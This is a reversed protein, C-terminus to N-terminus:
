PEVEMDCDEPVLYLFASNKRGATVPAGIAMPIETEGSSLNLKELRFINGERSVPIDMLNWGPGPLKLFPVVEGGEYERIGEVVLRARWKTGPLGEPPSTSDSLSAESISALIRRTRMNRRYASYRSNVTRFVDDLRDLLDFLSTLESKLARQREVRLRDWSNVIYEDWTVLSEIRLLYSIIMNLVLKKVTEVRTGGKSVSRLSSMMERTCVLKARRLISQRSREKSSRLEKISGEISEKLASAGQDGSILKEVRDALSMYVDNSSPEPRMCQGEDSWHSLYHSSVIGSGTNGRTIRRRLWDDKGSPDVSCLYMKGMDDVTGKLQELLDPERLIDLLDTLMMLSRVEEDDGKWGIGHVVSADLLLINRGTSTIKRIFRGISRQDTITEGPFLYTGVTDKEQRKSMGAPVIMEISLSSGEKVELSGSLTTRVERREGAYIELIPSIGTSPVKEPVDIKVEKVLGNRPLPFEIDEMRSTDFKLLGKLEPGEMKDAHYKIILTSSSGPSVKDPVFRCSELVSGSGNVMRVSGADVSVDGIDVTVLASVGPEDPFRFSVESGSVEGRVTKVEGNSRFRVFIEGEPVYPILKIRGEKGAEAPGVLEAKVQEDTERKVIGRLEHVARHGKEKIVIRVDGKEFERYPPGNLVIGETLVDKVRIERSVDSCLRNGEQDLLSSTILVTHARRDPAELRIPITVGEDWKLESAAVTLSTVPPSIDVGVEAMALTAKYTEGKIIFRMTGPGPEGKPIITLGYRFGNQDKGILTPGEVIELGKTRLTELELSGVDAEVVMEFRHPAGISPAGATEM